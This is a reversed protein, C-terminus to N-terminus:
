LLFIFAKKETCYGTLGYAQTKFFVNQDLYEIKANVKNMFSRLLVIVDSTTGIQRILDTLNYDLEVIKASNMPQFITM